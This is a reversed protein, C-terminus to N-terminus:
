LDFKEKVIKIFKKRTKPDLIEQSHNDQQPRINILAITEIRKSKLEIGGGWINKQQSGKQLLIKEGDAHWASGIVMNKNQIDLTIKIYSGYERSAKKIDDSSVKGQIFYSPM